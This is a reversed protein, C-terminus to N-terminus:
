VMFEPGPDCDNSARSFDGGCFRPDPKKEFLKSERKRPFSPL